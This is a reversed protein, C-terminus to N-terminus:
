GSMVCFDGCRHKVKGEILHHVFENLLSRIAGVTFSLANMRWSFRLIEQPERNLPLLGSVFSQWFYNRTLPQHCGLHREM